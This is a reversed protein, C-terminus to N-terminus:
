ASVCWVLLLQAISPPPPPAPSVSPLGPPPTVKSVTIFDAGLFVGTVGDLGLLASALPSQSCVLFLRWRPAVLSTCAVAPPSAPRDRRNNIGRTLARTAM